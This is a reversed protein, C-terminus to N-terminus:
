HKEYVAQTEFGAHDSGPFWVTRKGQMRAYRIMIDEITVFLAHGAHLSANANPPPMVISFTEANADTVGKEICVDPNFYGSEEWMKYLKEEHEAPNYPSLFVEPITTKQENM